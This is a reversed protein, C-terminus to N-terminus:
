SCNWCGFGQFWFQKAMVPKTILEPRFQCLGVTAKIQKVNLTFIWVCHTPCQRVHLMEKLFWLFSDLNWSDWRVGSFKLYTIKSEFMSNYLSISLSDNKKGIVWGLIVLFYELFYVKPSFLFCPLTSVPISEKVDM